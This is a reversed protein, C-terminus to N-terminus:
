GLYGERVAYAVLHPRNRLGLRAMTERLVNKITRESYSLKAAIERTGLGEAVLKIVDIERQSLDAPPPADGSAGGTGLSPGISSFLEGLLDPPLYGAGRDAMQIAHVVREPSAEHRRVIARVGCELTRSLDAEGIRDVILVMPMARLRQYKRLVALAADDVVDVCVVLVSAAAPDDGDLLILEPRRGLIGVVGSRVIPDDSRIMVRIRRQVTEDRSTLM